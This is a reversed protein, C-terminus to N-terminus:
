NQAVNGQTELSVNEVYFVALKGVIIEKICLFLFCLLVRLVSFSFSSFLWFLFNPRKLLLLLEAHIHGPPRLWLPFFFIFFHGM